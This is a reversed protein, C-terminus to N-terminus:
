RQRMEFSPAPDGKWRLVGVCGTIGNLAAAIDNALSLIFGQEEDSISGYRGSLVIPVIRAKAQLSEVSVAPTSAIRALAVKARTAYPEGLATAHRSDSDPDTTFGARYAAISQAYIVCQRILMEDAIRRRLRARRHRRSRRAM